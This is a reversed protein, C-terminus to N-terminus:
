VQQGRCQLSRPRYTSTETRPVDLNGRATSRLSYRGSVNLHYHNACRWLTRHPWAAFASTSLRVSQGM